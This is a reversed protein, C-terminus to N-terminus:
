MDQLLELMISTDVMDSISYDKIKDDPYGIDTRARKMNEYANAITKGNYERLEDFNLFHISERTAKYREDDAMDALTLDNRFNEVLISQLESKNSADLIWAHAKLVARLVKKLDSEPINKNFNVFSPMTAYDIDKNSAVVVGNEEQVAKNSYDGALVIAQIRGKAFNEYASKEEMAVLRVQSFAIDRTKLYYYVFYHMAFYNAPIAIPKKKLKEPTIGKKVIMKTNGMDKSIMGLNVAYMGKLFLDMHTSTWTHSFDIKHHALANFWDAVTKYHVINVDAGEKEFFGKEDAVLLESFGIHPYVGASYTAAQVFVPFVQFAVVVVLLCIIQKKMM